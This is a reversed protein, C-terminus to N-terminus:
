GDCTTTLASSTHFMSDNQLSGTFLESEGYSIPYDVAKDTTDQNKYLGSM